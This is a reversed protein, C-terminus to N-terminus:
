QPIAQKSTKRYTREVAAGGEPSLDYLLSDRMILKATLALAFVNASDRSTQMLEPFYQQLDYVFDESIQEMVLFSDQEVHWKGISVFFKTGPCFSKEAKFLMISDPRVKLTIANNEWHTTNEWVGVPDPKPKERESCSAILLLSSFLFIPSANGACKLWSTIIM